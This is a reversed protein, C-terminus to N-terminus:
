RTFLMAPQTVSVSFFGEVIKRGGAPDGTQVDNMDLAVNTMTGTAVADDNFALRFSGGTIATSEITNGGNPTEAYSVYVAGPDSTAETVSNVLRLTVPADPRQTFVMHLQVVSDDDLTLQATVDYHASSTLLADVSNDSVCVDIPQSRGEVRLGVGSEGPCLADDAGAPNNDSCAPLLLAFLLAALASGYNTIKRGHM